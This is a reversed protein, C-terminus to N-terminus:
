LCANPRLKRLEPQRHKRFVTRMDAQSFILFPATFIDAYIGTIPRSICASSRVLDFTKQVQEASNPPSLFVRQQGTHEPIGPVSGMILWVATSYATFAPNARPQSILLNEVANANLNQEIVDANNPLSKSFEKQLAM